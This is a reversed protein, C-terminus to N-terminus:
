FEIRDIIDQDNGVVKAVVEIHERLGSSDIKRGLVNQIQFVGASESMVVEIRLAKHKGRTISVERISLASVSHIDVKGMQFPIRARGGAMDAGDGVTVCGAELSLCSVEEDHSFICELISARVRTAKEVSYLSPLFDRLIEGALKCAHLHHGTRHVGNGIDHLYSGGLVIFQSDQFDGWHEDEVTTQFGQEHLLSNITLANITAIRSHTPGHDNYNLRGIVLTNGHTLLAQVEPDTEMFDLLKLAKENGALLSHLKERLEKQFNEDGSPHKKM